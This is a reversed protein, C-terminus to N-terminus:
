GRIVGRGVEILCTYGLRIQMGNHVFEVSMLLFERRKTQVDKTAVLSFSSRLLQLLFIASQDFRCIYGEDDEPDTTEKPQIHVWKNMLIIHNLAVSSPPETALHRHVRDYVRKKDTLQINGVSVVQWKIGPGQLSQCSMSKLLHGRATGLHSFVYCVCKHQSM